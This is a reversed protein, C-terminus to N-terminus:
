ETPEKKKSYMDVGEYSITYPLGTDPNVTAGSSNQVKSNLNKVESELQNKQNKLAESQQDDITIIIPDNKDQTLGGAYMNEVQINFRVQGVGNDEVKEELAKEAKDLITKACAAALANDDTTSMIYKLKALAMDRASSVEAMFKKNRLMTLEEIVSNVEKNVMMRNGALSPNKHTPDMVKIAQTPTYDGFAVLEVFMKQAESLLHYKSAQIQGTKLATLIEQKTELVVPEFIRKKDSM